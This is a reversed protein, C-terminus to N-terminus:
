QDIPDLAKVAGMDLGASLVTLYGFLLPPLLLFFLLILLFFLFYTDGTTM